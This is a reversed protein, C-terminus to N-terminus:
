IKYFAQVFLKSVLNVIRVGSFQTSVIVASPSSGVNSQSIMKFCVNCITDPKMCQKVSYTNKSSNHNILQFAAQQCTWVQPLPHRQLTGNNHNECMRKKRSTFSSTREPFIIIHFYEWKREVDEHRQGFQPVDAKLSLKGDQPCSIARVEVGESFATPIM